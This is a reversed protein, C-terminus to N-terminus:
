EIKKLALCQPLATALAKAGDNHLSSVSLSGCRNRSFFLTRRPRLANILANNLMLPQHALGARVFELTHLLRIHPLVAALATFGIDGFGNSGLRHM